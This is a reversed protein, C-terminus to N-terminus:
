PQASRVADEPAPVARPLARELAASAQLAPPTVLVFNFFRYVVMGAFATALSLGAWHLAYTMLAETAGAGGLPLTRRTAAYGTAYAVVIAPLAVSAHFTQLAAWLSLIEAGWYLTMGAAAEVSRVPHERVHRWIAVAHLIEGVRDPLWSRKGRWRLALVAAVAFGLPVGIAWPWLLSAHVKSGEALLAFACVCALPALVVYEVVGLTLVKIRNREVNAGTSCLARYDLAFGGGVTFAGFGAAVLRIALPPPLRLPEGLAGVVRYTLAYGLLGALQAAAVVFLWQPQVRALADATRDFGVVSALVISVGSAIALALM